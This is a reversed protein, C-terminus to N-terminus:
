IEDIDFMTQFNAMILVDYIDQRCNKIKIKESIAGCQERLLLLMGLASSDIEDVMAMDIVVKYDGDSASDLIKRFDANVDFNFHGKISITAVDNSDNKSLDISM